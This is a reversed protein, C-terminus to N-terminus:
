NYSDQIKKDCKDCMQMDDGGGEAYPLEAGCGTCSRDYYCKECLMRKTCIAYCPGCTKSHKGMDEKGCVKCKFAM